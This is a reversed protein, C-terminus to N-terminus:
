SAQRSRSRTSALTSAFAADLDAMFGDFDTVAASDAVVGIGARHVHSVLAVNVAAGSPPAFAYQGTVAAGAIYVPTPFGTVNTTVFDTGLLMSALVATTVAPPLNVLVSAVIDSLALMREDDRWTACVAGASRIRTRADGDVLPVVFRAPVFHNGGVADGSRRVSVPMTMRLRAVPEGHDVHYRRLAEAVAAAFVGNLTTGAGAAARRFSALPYDLIGLRRGPGREVMLPSLPVTAPELLRRLAAATATAESAAGRPDVLARKAARALARGAVPVGTALHELRWRLADAVLPPAVDAPRVDLPAITGVAPATPTGDFVASALQIAGEGDSFSHHFRTVMAARGGEVGEIITLDWLPRDLDFPSMALPEAMGLVAEVTGPPPAQVVRVHYRLDLPADTWRPPALGAPPEAVRQRLRPFHQATAALRRKLADVDPPRDLLALATVPTRLTPERQISWLVQDSGNM